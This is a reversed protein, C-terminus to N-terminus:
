SVREEKIRKIFNLIQGNENRLIKAIIWTNGTMFNYENILDAFGGEDYCFIPIQRDTFSFTEVSNAIINQEQM